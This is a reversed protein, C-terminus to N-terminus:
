WSDKGIKTTSPLRDISVANYHDTFPVMIHNMKTNNAIKVDTYVRDIRSGITAPSSLHIQTKGEGYIRLGM